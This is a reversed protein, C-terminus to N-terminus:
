WDKHPKKVSMYLWIKFIQKFSITKGKSAMAIDYKQYDFHKFTKLSVLGWVTFYIKLNLPASDLFFSLIGNVYEFGKRM